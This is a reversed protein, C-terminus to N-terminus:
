VYNFSGGDGLGTVVAAIKVFPDAPDNIFAKYFSSGRGKHLETVENSAKIGIFTWGLDDEDSAAEGRFGIIDCRQGTDVINVEFYRAAWDNVTSPSMAAAFNVISTSVPAYTSGGGAITEDIYFYRDSNAVGSVDLGKTYNAITFDQFVDELSRATFDGVTDRLVQFSDPASPDTNAWYAEIVDVGIQPEVNVTGLQETLYNWFLAGRYSASTLTTNPSGLYVAIENLYTICGADQDLDLWVKDQMLRAMGECTWQGWTGSCGGCSTSGGNIYSYQVHHFQEHDSVLRLCTEAQGGLAPSDLSITCFDAGGTDSSDYICVERNGGVFFPAQFGLDLYAQHTADLADAVDQADADSIFDGDTNDNTYSVEYGFVPTIINDTLNAPCAAWVPMIGVLLLSFVALMFLLHKIKM